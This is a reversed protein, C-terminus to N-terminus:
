DAVGDSIRAVEAKVVDTLQDFGTIGIQAAVSNAGTIADLARGDAGRVIFGEVFPALIRQGVHRDGDDAIDAERSPSTSCSGALLACAFVGVRLKGFRRKM